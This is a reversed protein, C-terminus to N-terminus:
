FFSVLAKAAEVRASVSRSSLPAQTSCTTPPLKSIVKLCLSAQDIIAKTPFPSCGCILVACKIRSWVRLRCESLIIEEGQGATRSVVKQWTHKPLLVLVPQATQEHYQTLVSSFNEM